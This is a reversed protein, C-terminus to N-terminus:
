REDGERKAQEMYALIIDEVNVEHAHWKTSRFKPDKLRVLLDTENAAHTEKIIRYESSMPKEDRPGALLKHTAIINEISDCLQTQGSALLILHDCVRELDALLHSSMIVTLEGNAETAAQTLSTLFEVRALPDLAAVPEDLLLLKPKKALALALAVQARQGGSLKSTPRDFPIKLERLRTTALEQDWHIDMHAGMALHKEVTMQSYLPIEQALYGIESLYAASQNPTMGLVSATGATPSSLDVLLRLLTTKGAGNPGVLATISGKPVAITCDKLAWLSDYQKGLGSTQVANEIRNM